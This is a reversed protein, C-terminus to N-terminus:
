TQNWRSPNNPKLKVNEKKNHKITKVDKDTQTKISEYFKLFCFVTGAMRWWLIPFPIGMTKAFLSVFFYEAIRYDIWVFFFVFKM